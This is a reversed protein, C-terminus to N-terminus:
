LKISLYKFKDKFIAHFIEQKKRNFTQIKSSIVNLKTQLTDFIEIKRM